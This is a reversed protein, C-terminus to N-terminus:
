FAYQKEKELELRKLTESELRLFSIKYVNYQILFIFICFFVIVAVCFYQLIIKVYLIDNFQAIPNLVWEFIGMTINSLISFIIILLVNNWFFKQNNLLFLHKNEQMRRAIISYGSLYLVVYINITLFAYLLPNNQPFNPFWIGVMLYRVMVTAIQQLALGM